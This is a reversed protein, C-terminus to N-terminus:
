RKPMGTWPVDTLGAPAENGGDNQASASALYPQEDDRRQQTADDRCRHVSATGDDRSLVQLIDDLGAVMPCVLGAALNMISLLGRKNTM